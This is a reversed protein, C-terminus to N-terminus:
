IRQLIIAVITYIPIQHTYLGNQCRQTFGLSRINSIKSQPPPYSMINTVTENLGKISHLESLVMKSQSPM